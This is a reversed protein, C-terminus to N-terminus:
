LVPEAIWDLADRTAIKACSPGVLDQSRIRDCSWVDSCSLSPIVTAVVVRLGIM